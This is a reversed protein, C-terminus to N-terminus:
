RPIVMKNRPHKTSLIKRQKNTSVQTYIQTTTISSHGLLKQIYRIDVDAELLSTAFSHRFMHPTIHYDYGAMKVYKCIIERVSQEKLPAHLKNIFFIGCRQIDDQFAISYTKLAKLVDRNEVQIVREKAGKGFIKVTHARLDLDTNKLQCLESVRAGTAFLMELIAIDRLVLRQQYASAAEERAQYAVCLIKYIVEMPITKPLVKAERFAIEIREFPSHEIYDDVILYHAFAKLVAMKRRVTKPKYTMNLKEVYRYLIEKSFNDGAFLVFQKLDISYAKLTKTNLKKRYKCYRLFLDGYYSIDM